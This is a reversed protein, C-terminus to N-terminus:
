AFGLQEAKWDVLRLTIETGESTGFSELGSADAGHVLSLPITVTGTGRSPPCDVFFSMGSPALGRFITTITRYAIKDAMM